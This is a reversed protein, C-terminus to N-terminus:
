FLQMHMYVYILPVILSYKLSCTWRLSYFEHVQLTELLLWFLIAQKLYM